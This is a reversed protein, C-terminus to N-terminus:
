RINYSAVIKVEQSLPNYYEICLTTDRSVTVNQAGTRGSNKINRDGIYNNGNTDWVKVKISPNNANITLTQGAKVYYVDVGSVDWRWISHTKEEYLMPKSVNTKISAPEITGSAFVPVASTLIAVAGLSAILKKM